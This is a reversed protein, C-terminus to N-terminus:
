EEEKKEKEKKEYEIYNSNRKYCIDKYKCYTCSKDENGYKKPNINFNSNLINESAELIKDEVLNILEKIGEDSIMKSNGHFSGDKKLRLSKVVSSTASSGLESDILSYRNDESSTFGDLEISEAKLDELSKGNVYNIKTNILHQLYYGVINSNSYNSCKKVLYLYSPLQLSLGFEFLESEAKNDGTKYDIICIDDKHKLIKDIIGNFKIHENLEISINRECEIENFLSVEKQAKIVEVDEKIEEKLKNIFFNEKNSALEYKEKAKGEEWLADFDLSDDKVLKQLVYHAISGLYTFFTDENKDVKLVKDLYYKFACEYYSNMSSYSLTINNQKTDFKKYSNDYTDYDNDAYTVYMDEIDKDKSGYKNFDDLMKSYKYKNLANSHNNDNTTEIYSVNNFLTQPNHNSFPTCKSYSLYLNNINSLYNIANEKALRNEEEINEINVLHRINNTIYAIDKKMTPVLDNFGLFFVYDDDNFDAFMNACNIVNTYNNALHTDKLDEIILERVKNLNEYEVYKNIINILTNFYESNSNVLYDYLKEKNDLRSLFEKAIDTGYLSDSDIYNIKFSYYTNYRKIYSSYEDTVNLLYIKNIDVGSELLDFISNYIYEVEEDINNFTNIDYHKDNYSYEIYDTNDSFMSKTHESMKGYGTVTINKNKIYEKFLPNYILLDNLEKKYKVLDNLKKNGYDKEEVYYLNDIIEKSNNVSLHYVDLLYKIAKYDYDFYYNKKYEGISLFSINLIKKNSSLEKLIKKKLGSPCIILTNDKINNLM